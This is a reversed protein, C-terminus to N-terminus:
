EGETTATDTMEESAEVETVEIVEVAAASANEQAPAVYYNQRSEDAPAMDEANALPAMLALVTIMMIKKM